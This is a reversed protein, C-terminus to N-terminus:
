LYSEDKWGSRRLTLWKSGGVEEMKVLKEDDPDDTVKWTGNLYPYNSDIKITCNNGSWKITGDQLNYLLVERGEWEDGMLAIEIFDSSKSADNRDLTGIGGPAIIYYLASKAKSDGLDGDRITYNYGASFKEFGEIKFMDKCGTLTLAAFLVVLTKLVSKM